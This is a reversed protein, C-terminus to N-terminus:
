QYKWEIEQLLQKIAVNNNYSGNNKKINENMSRLIERNNLVKKIACYLSNTTNKVIIGDFNNQIQESAAPYQTTIVPTGTILSEKIVMPYAEYISSLVFCDAYKMYPYPNNLEGKFVLVDDLHREKAKNYLLDYDEGDGIIYWKFGSFGEEKLKTCIDIIRYLAKSKNEIRAVTVFKLNNSDSDYPHFEEAMKTIRNNDYMNYVVKSKDSYIPIIGDFIDKCSYAVSIIKDFKKYTTKCKNYNLGIDNPDAHIWAIKKESKVCKLIFDNCGCTCGKSSYIDNAYSIAIDYKKLKPSFNMLFMTGRKKGVVKFLLRSLLYVVIRNLNKSSLNEERSSFITNILWPTKLCNVSKHIDFDKINEDNLLLLDVKIEPYKSIESLLNILSTTIGGISLPYSVIILKM